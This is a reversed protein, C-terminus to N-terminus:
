IYQIQKYLIIQDNQSIAKLDFNDKASVIKLGSCRTCQLIIKEYLLYVSANKCGCECVINNKEAIDNIKNFIELMVTSNSFIKEFGITNALADKKLELTDLHRRVEGDKGILCLEVGTYECKITKVTGVWLEYFGMILKHRDGCGICPVDVSYKKYDHTEITLQSKGCRCSIVVGSKGSFDFLSIDEFHNSGCAPCVYTVTRNQRIIM